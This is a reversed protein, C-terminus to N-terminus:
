RCANFLHSLRIMDVKEDKVGWEEEKGEGTPWETIKIKINWIKM